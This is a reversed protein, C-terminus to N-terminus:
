CCCGVKNVLSTIDAQGSKQIEGLQLAAAKKITASSGTDLLAM